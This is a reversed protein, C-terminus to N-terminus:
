AHRKMLFFCDPHFEPDHPAPDGASQGFLAVRIHPSKELRLKFFAEGWILRLTLRLRLTNLGFAEILHKAQRGSEFVQVCRFLACKAVPNSRADLARARPGPSEAADPSPNRKVSATVLCDTRVMCRFPQVEQQISM